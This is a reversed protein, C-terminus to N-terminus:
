KLTFADQDQLFAFDKRTQQLKEADLEVQIIEDTELNEPSLPQGLADLVISHGNYANNNEDNGIRNVGAVYSMNEIARAKLLHDWAYVRKQPWNANYFLFDYDETNRAWVPFRLDYCILPCIKWGKYNVLLRKEGASYKHHEGAFTFRHRKDYTQYHADPFVFFMRNYYNEGEKIIISGALATNKEQATQQMWALTKGSETEALPEPHMSFGTSFMEPLIILDTNQISAIKKSFHERNREADEWFLETQILAVKLNEM